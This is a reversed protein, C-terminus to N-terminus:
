IYGIDMWFAMGVFFGERKAEMKGLGLGRAGVLLIYIYIMCGWLVM